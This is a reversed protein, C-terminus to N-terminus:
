ARVARRRVSGSITLAWLPVLQAPYSLTRILWANEQAAVPTYLLCLVCLSGGLVFWREKVRPFCRSLLRAPMSLCFCAGTLLGTYVVIMHPMQLSLSTRGNSLLTDLRFFRTHQAFPMTPALMSYLLAVTLTFLTVKSFTCAATRWSGCLMWIPVLLMNVGALAVAERGIAESGDALLPLLWRPVFSRYQVAAILLLLLPLLLVRVRSAGAVARCGCLACACAAAVTAVNLWNKSQSSLAIYTAVDILEAASLAASVLLFLSLIVYYAGRGARGGARLLLEEPEVGPYQRELLGLALLAPLFGLAGVLHTLAFAGTLQPTDIILAYCLKFGVGIIGLAAASKKDITM